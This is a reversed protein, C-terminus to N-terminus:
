RSSPPTPPLLDPDQSPPDTKVVTTQFRKVDEEYTYTFESASTWNAKISEAVKTAIERLSSGCRQVNFIFKRNNYDLYARAGAVYCVAHAVRGVMRVHILRTPQDHRGLVYQALVAYDDCDGRQQRLFVEAPLIEIGFEYDFDEFYAAFRKPTLNPHSVLELLTVADLRGPLLAGVLLAFAVRCRGAAARAPRAVQAVRALDGSRFDLVNVTGAMM